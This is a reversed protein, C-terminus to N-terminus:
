TLFVARVYIYEGFLQSFNKFGKFLRNFGISLNPKPVVDLLKMSNKMSESEGSLIESDEVGKSGELSILVM